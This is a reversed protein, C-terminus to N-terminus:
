NRFADIDANQSDFWYSQNKISRAVLKEENFSARDLVILRNWFAGNTWKHLYGLIEQEQQGFRTM